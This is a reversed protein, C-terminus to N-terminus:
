SNLALYSSFNEYFLLGAQIPQKALINKLKSKHMGHHLEM